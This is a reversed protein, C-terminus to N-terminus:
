VHARGIEVRARWEGDRGNFVLLEDGATLRMVAALYRSQGDDLSLEAGATLDHPVFLRIM